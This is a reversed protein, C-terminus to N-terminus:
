PNHQIHDALKHMAKFLTEIEEESLGAGAFLETNGALHSARIQERMAEGAETLRLQHRRRDTPSPERLLLGKQTLDDLIKVLLPAKMGAERAIDAQSATPNNAVFEIIMGEKTTLGIKAFHATALKTTRAFVLFSLYGIIDRMYSYNFSTPKNKITM